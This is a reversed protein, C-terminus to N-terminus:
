QVIYKSFYVDRLKGRDVLERTRVAIEERLGERKTVDVLQEMTKSTLVSNLLDRVAMEKKELSKVADESSMNFAITTLLYRQGNTGAPNIIMDKVVYIFQDKSETDSSESDNSAAASDHTGGGGAHASANGNPLHTTMPVIYKATLFYIVVLQVLFAPIGILLVTKLNGGKKEEVKAAPSAAQQTEDAM